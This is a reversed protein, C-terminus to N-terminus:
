DLMSAKKRETNKDPQRRFPWGIDLNHNWNKCNSAEKLKV